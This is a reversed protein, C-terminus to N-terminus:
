YNERYFYPAPDIYLDFKSAMGTRPDALLSVSIASIAYKLTFNLSKV